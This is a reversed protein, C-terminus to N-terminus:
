SQAQRKQYNNDIIQLAFDCQSAPIDALKHLQGCNARKAFVRLFVNRDTDTEALRAEIQRAQEDSIREPGPRTAAGDDDQDEEAIGIAAKLTYRQLYSVASGIAQISNKGGSQDAGATLTTRESHGDRHSVICTVTIQGNSQDTEWRFSLGHPTMANSVAGAMHDLTAHDYETRGGKSGYSVKKNKTVRPPDAKLANMAQNWAKRAENAEYREQLAMLKELKEIDAGQQVATNLMAMPTVTNSSQEVVESTQKQQLEQAM